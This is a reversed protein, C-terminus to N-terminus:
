RRRPSAALDRWDQQELLVGVRRGVVQVPRELNKWAFATRLIPHRNMVQQWASKFSEGQLDGRLVASLQEIYVQLESAYLTDFLMGEQLPSLPYTDEINNRLM